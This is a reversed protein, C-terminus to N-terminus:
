DLRTKVDLELAVQEGPGMLAWLKQMQKSSYKILGVVDRVKTLLAQIGEDVIAKQIILNLTHAACRFHVANITYEQELKECILRSAAVVNAAGDTVIASLRTCLNADTLVNCITEAIHEKTHPHPFEFVDLISHPLAM